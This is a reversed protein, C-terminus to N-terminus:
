ASAGSSSTVVAPSPNMAPMTLGAQLCESVFARRVDSETDDNHAFDDIWIRIIWRQTLPTMEVLGPVPEPKPGSSEMGHNLHLLLEFLRAERRDGLAEEIFMPDVRAHSRSLFRASERM